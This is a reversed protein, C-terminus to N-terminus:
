PKAAPAGTAGSTTSAAPAPPTAKLADLNPVLAAEKWSGLQYTWGALKTGLKAAEDASKGSGTASFRAWIDKEGKFLTVGIKLGDDTTFESTGIQEGVKPATADKDPLVDEFSLLELGRALDDLKYDELKPPNAPARLTLKGNQKAFDLEAGDRHVVISTVRAHDINMMDRDLWLQPDADVELSGEALWTRADGQRRVFVQDPVNGATRVRRHGVLLEAIAKGDRDLVRLLVASSDKGTADALGLRGYLAPDSTRPEVLRLETLATLMGRLKSSQVPYMGRQVLGWPAEPKDGKRALTMTSGQHTIEIRTADALKPALGPFMLTGDPIGAQQSPEQAVGFYWGGALSLAGLLCLVVLVRPRIM